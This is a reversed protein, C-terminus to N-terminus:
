PQMGRFLRRMTRALRRDSVEHNVLSVQVVHSADAAWIQRLEHSPGHPPLTIRIREQAAGVDDLPEFTEVTGRVGPTPTLASTLPPMAMHLQAEAQSRMAQVYQQAAHESHFALVQVEVWETVSSASRSSWGDIFQSALSQNHGSHSLRERLSYDGIEEEIANWGSPALTRRARRIRRQTRRDPGDEVVPSYTSPALIMASAAPPNQLVTWIGDVGRLQTQHDIFSRGQGYVYSTYFLEPRLGIEHADPTYGLIEAVLDVAETHGLAHGVQEQVWVAHGEVTCNVAIIQDSTQREGVVIGLDTHQDQLAHVLEHALVIDIVPDVLDMSAGKSALAVPIGEQLVYLRKDLFGYKGVFTAPKEPPDELAAARADEESLGRISRLLHVQEAMLVRGLQAPTALVVEPVQKFSRGAEREVLPVLDMVRAELEAQTNVQGFAPGALVLGLALWPHAYAM